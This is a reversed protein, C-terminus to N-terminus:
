FEYDALGWGDSPIPGGAPSTAAPVMETTVLGHRGTLEDVIDFAAGIRDPTDVVVTTVPVSRGLQWLRDGHPAHDGHFGWIGRLATAGAMGPTQQLRQVFARHIPQGDHAASESTYVMLKQRVARGNLDTGPLEHPRRLLRGDRKCVRVRELTVLPAPLLDALEPLAAAIAAGTGVSIVMLPVGQNAGFFRARHRAGYRTGDLGLLVSAGALGRHRLLDCVAIHAPRQDVRQRRGLYVTLKTAEGLKEPLEAAALGDTVLRARELTVLGTLGLASVDDLMSEVVAARDVAIAVVAPDESLTLTRDTRRHHGPGFGDIGRLLLSTAVRHRTFCDLLADAVLVGDVRRREAAYATLKLCDSTTV